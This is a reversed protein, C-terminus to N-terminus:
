WMSRISPLRVCSARQREDARVRERAPGKPMARVTGAKRAIHTEFRHMNLSKEAGVYGADGHLSQEEGPLLQPVQSVDSVKAATGKAAHGLGTVVDAGLHAKLGFCSLNRMSAEHVEERDRAQELNKTSPAATILIVDVVTGERLLLGEGLHANVRDFIM